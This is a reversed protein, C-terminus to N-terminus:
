CTDKRSGPHVSPRVPGFWYAEWVEEFDPAYFRCTSSLLFNAIDEGVFTILGSYCVNLRRVGDKPHIRSCYM